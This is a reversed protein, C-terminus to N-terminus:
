KSRIYDVLIRLDEKQRKFVDNFRKYGLEVLSHRFFEDEIQLLRNEIETISYPNFYLVGDSCVEPISCCSSAITPTGCSMAQLPPYGFGENLSPYIFCFARQMLSSLEENSVYPLFEFHDINKIRRLIRSSPNGTIKVSHSILGKSLLDDIALIARYTNKLWRNGSVLLYYNDKKLPAISRELLSPSYLVKINELPFKPYFTAISYKTHNSVVIFEFNKNNLLTGFEKYVRRHTVYEYLKTQKIRSIIYGVLGEEYVHMYKDTLIELSRLGHITGIFRIGSFDLTGYKYPLASYFTDGGLKHIANVLGIDKYDICEINNNKLRSLYEQSINLESTYVCSFLANSSLLENLIIGAYEGGGHNKINGYYQVSTLDFILM